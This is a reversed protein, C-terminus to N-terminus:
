RLVYRGIVALALVLLTAWFVANLALYTGREREREQRVDELLDITDARNAPYRRKAILSVVVAGILGVLAFPLWHVGVATPGFPLLWVGGAWTLMFIMLFFWFFGSRRGRRRTRRAFVWSLTGAIVLATIMEAAVVM